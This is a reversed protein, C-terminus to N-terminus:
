KEISFVRDRGVRRKRLYGMAFLQNLYDSEAARVRSTVHSVSSATGEGLKVMAMATKRLHDPLSMLGGADLHKAKGSAEGAHMPESRNKLSELLSSLTENLKVLNRNLLRLQDSVARPEEKSLERRPM